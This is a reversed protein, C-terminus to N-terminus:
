ANGTIPTNAPSLDGCTARSAVDRAPSPTTRTTSVHASLHLKGSRIKRGQALNPNINRTQTPARATPAARRRHMLPRITNQCRGANFRRGSPIYTPTQSDVLPLDPWLLSTPRLDSIHGPPTVRRRLLLSTLALLMDRGSLPYARGDPPCLDGVRRLTTASKTCRQSVPTASLVGTDRRTRSPGRTGTANTLPVPPQTHFSVTVSLADAIHRRHALRWPQPPSLAHAQTPRREWGTDTTLTM